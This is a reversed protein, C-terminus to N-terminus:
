HYFGHHGYGGHYPYYGGHGGFYPAHYGGYGGYGGYYPFGFGGGHGGGYFGGHGGYYGGHGYGFGYIGRKETKKDALASNEAELEAYCLALVSCLVLVCLVNQFKNIIITGKFLEFKKQNKKKKKKTNSIRVLSVFYKM